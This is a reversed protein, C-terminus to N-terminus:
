NRRTRVSESFGETVTMGDPTEGAKYADIAKKKQLEPEPFKFFTAHKKPDAQVEYTTTKQVWTTVLATKVGFGTQNGHKDVKPFHRKLVDLLAGEMREITQERAKKRETLQNIREKIADVEAEVNSMADTWEEIAKPGEQCLLEVLAPDPERGEEIAQQIAEMIPGIGFIQM